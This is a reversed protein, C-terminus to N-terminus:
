MKVGIILRSMYLLRMARAGIAMSHVSVLIAAISIAGYEPVFVLGLLVASIGSVISTILHFVEQKIELLYQTIVQGAGVVIIWFSLLPMFETLKGFRADDLIVPIYKAVFFVVLAMLSSVVVLFLAHYILHRILNNQNGSQCIESINRNLVRIAQAQFIFILSILQFAFSYASLEVVDGTDALILQNGYVLFANSLLAITFHINTGPSDLRPLSIRFTYYKESYKNRWLKVQYVISIIRTIVLMVSVVIILQSEVKLLMLAGILFVVLVREIMVCLNQHATKHYYDFWSTPYLGLLGVWLSLLTISAIEVINGMYFCSFLFLLLFMILAVTLRMNFSSQALHEVEASNELSVADRVFTKASGLDLLPMIFGGVAIGIAVMSYDIAGLLRALLLFIIFGLFSNTYSIGMNYLLKKFKGPTIVTM